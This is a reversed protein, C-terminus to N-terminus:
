CACVSLIRLYPFVLGTNFYLSKKKCHSSNILIYVAYLSIKFLISSKHLVITSPFVKRCPKICQAPAGPPYRWHHLFFTKSHWASCCRYGCCVNIAEWVTSPGNPSCSECAEEAAPCPFQTKDACIRKPRRWWFPWGAELCRAMRSRVWWSSTATSFSFCKKLLETTLLWINLQWTYWHRFLSIRVKSKWLYWTSVPGESQIARLVFSGM